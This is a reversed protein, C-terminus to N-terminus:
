ILLLVVFKLALSKGIGEDIKLALVELGKQFEWQRDQQVLVLKLLQDKALWGNLKGVVSSEANAAEELLGEALCALNRSIDEFSRTLGSELRGLVCHCLLSTIQSGIGDVTDQVDLM